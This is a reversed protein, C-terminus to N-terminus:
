AALAGKASWAAALVAARTESAQLVEVIERPVAGGRAGPFSAMAWDVVELVPELSPAWPPADDVLRRLRACIGALARAAADLRVIRATLFGATDAETASPELTRALWAGLTDAVLSEVLADPTPWCADRPRHHLVAFASGRVVGGAAALLRTGIMDSRRTDIGGVTACPYAHAVCLTADFFVANAGRFPRAHLVAFHDARALIPRTFAAGRPIHEVDVVMQALASATSQAGGRPLWLIPREWAGPRRTVSLDYYADHAGLRARAVASARWRADPDRVFMARLSAELDALRGVVTGVVPIPPDGCVEGILLDLGSHRRAFEVLFSLHHHLPREILFEGGWSLHSLRVDDDLMWVFLPPPCSALHARIQAQQARRSVAISGGPSAAAILEAVVGASRVSACLTQNAARAGAGVSNDNILLTLSVAARAAQEVLDTVLAVLSAPRDTCTISIWVEPRSM